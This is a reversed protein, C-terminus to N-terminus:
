RVEEFEKLIGFICLTQPRIQEVAKLPSWGIVPVLRLSDGDAGGVTQCFQCHSLRMCSCSAVYGIFHRDRVLAHVGVFDVLCMADCSYDTCM